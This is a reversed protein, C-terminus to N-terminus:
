SKNKAACTLYAQMWQEKTQGCDKIAADSPTRKLLYAELEKGKLGNPVFVFTEAGSCKSALNKRERRKLVEEASVCSVDTLFTVPDTKAKYESLKDTLEKPNAEYRAVLGPDPKALVQVALSPLPCTLTGFFVSVFLTRM